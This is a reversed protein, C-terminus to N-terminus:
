HWHTSNIRRLLVSDPITSLPGGSSYAVFMSDPAGRALHQTLVTQAARRDRDLTLRIPCDVLSESSPNM